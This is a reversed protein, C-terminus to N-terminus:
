VTILLRQFRLIEAGAFDDCWVFDYVNPTYGLAIKRTCDTSGTDVVVLEVDYVRLLELCRAINKEANRVIVCVSLQM